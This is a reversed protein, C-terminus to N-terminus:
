LGRLLKSFQYFLSTMLFAFVIGMVAPSLDALWEIVGDVDITQVWGILTWVGWGLVGILLIALVILGGIAVDTMSRVIELAASRVPAPLDDSMSAEVSLVDPAPPSELVMLMPASSRELDHLMKRADRNRPAARLASELVEKAAQHNGEDILQQALLLNAM